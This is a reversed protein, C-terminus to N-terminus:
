GLAMVAAAIPEMQSGAARAAQLDADEVSGAAQTSDDLLRKLMPWPRIGLRERTAEAAGLAIMAREAHGEHMALGALADLCYSLGEQFSIDRYIDVAATLAGRAEAIQEATLFTLGLQTQAQAVLAESDLRSALALVQRQHGIGEATNGQTTELTGLVMHVSGQGMENGLSRFQTLADALERRIEATDIDLAPLTVARLWRAWALGQHDGIRDSLGINRDVLELARAYDGREFAGDAALWLAHGQLIPSLSEFEKPVVDMWPAVERVHGRMVIHLWVAHLLSVVSDPRGRDGLWRAAAHLNDWEKDLEGMAAAHGVGQLLPANREAVALYHTAHGDRVATEEGSERLREAGYDRVTVLMRFRPEREADTDVRVLSKDVLSEIAGLVSSAADGGVDEAADLTWSGVFVTLRRFVRQEENTLLEHSWDMTSRLTRQREPLDTPGRGLADFSRMLQDLLAGAPLLRLRAAALEIALPLGDLRRAIAAVDAANAATIRFGPSVARAREAFLKVAASTTVSQLDADSDVPVDLPEVQYEHEGGVRLAVRSTVLAHVGPSRALLEAVAPAGEVVQEFNDLVLLVRQNSLSDALSESLSGTVPIGAAEAVKVLVRNPDTESSLDVFYVGDPYDASLQEAVALALRTKGIGGAGTLTVLRAEGSSFLSAVEGTVRGRGVLSTLQAPLRIQTPRRARPPPFQEALGPAELQYLREARSLGKLAFSGLDRIHWQHRSLLDLLLGQATSSVLIQGGHGAAGIRAARHVDLGVYGEATVTARGTHLGIRARVEVGRGVQDAALARQIEVAAEAANSTENFVCFMGDGETDVVLGAHAAVARGVLGHYRHLVDAYGAGMRELLETSGEIDSFVFTLTGSPLDEKPAAGGADFRESMLVALDDLLLEALEGPSEFRKYSARDDARVRDLLAELRPHRDPAPEKVYILRPHDGSLAYEDEIGSVKMDPAVWGYSQWYIGVFVDSRAIYSRYLDRPPHPRAGLEFMVPSLRLTHVATKAADREAALEGLTSSVFVRLRQDPTHIHSRVSPAVTAAQDAPPVTPEDAMM